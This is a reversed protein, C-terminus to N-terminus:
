IQSFSNVTGHLMSAYDLRDLGRQFLQFAKFCLPVHGAGVNMRKALPPRVM